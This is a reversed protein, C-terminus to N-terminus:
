GSAVEARRTLPTKYAADGFNGQQVLRVDARFLLTSRIASAISEALAADQTGGASLEAEVPVPPNVSVGDGSRVVRLRGTVRPRFRGVVDQIASPYVNVGRVIFMDDTRGLCRIRFGTRGCECSTGLVEVLDGSRFRVVPMAERRLSTYVAEGVAGPEIEVPEGSHQDILEPWVHGQGSFHMGQQMPCEGFLSPAVDGLGMLETVRAGFAEEIHDRITPIGGGPEGGSIVHTIGFGPGDLGREAFLDALYLAFSPTGLTTDVIRREFTSLVRATDGPGVPVSRVGIDDCVGHTHGAVFPGAGFTSLVSHHPHLGTAYYSRAGIARWTLVDQWTLALLSPRGSTGSTQYVRKVEDPDVALHSGFPPEDEQARALEAKTTLPVRPLDEVRQIRRLDTGAERLKRRLYPSREELGEAQKRWIKSSSQRLDDRTLCEADRDWIWDRGCHDALRPNGFGDAWPTTSTV